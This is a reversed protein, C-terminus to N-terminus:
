IQNLHLRRLSREQHLYGNFYTLTHNFITTLSLLFRFPESLSSSFFVPISFSLSNFLFLCISSMQACIYISSSILGFAFIYFVEVFGEIGDDIIVLVM